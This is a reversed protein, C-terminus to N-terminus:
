KLLEELLDNLKCFINDYIKYMLEPEEKDIMLVYVKKRNGKMWGAETHASRGSPLLLICVDAWKM